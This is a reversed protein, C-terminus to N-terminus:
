ELYKLSFFSGFNNNLFSSKKYENITMEPPADYVRVIDADDSAESDQSPKPEEKESVVDINETLDTDTLDHPVQARLAKSAELLKDRLIGIRVNLQKEDVDLLTEELETM